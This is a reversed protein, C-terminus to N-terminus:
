YPGFVGRLFYLDDWGAVEWQWHGIIDRNTPEDILRSLVFTFCFVFNVVSEAKISTTKRGSGGFSWLRM